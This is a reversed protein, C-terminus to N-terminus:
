LKSAKQKQYDPLPADWWWPKETFGYNSQPPTAWTGPVVPWPVSAESGTSPRAAPLVEPFIKGSTEQGRLHAILSLKHQALEQIIARAVPTNRGTVQLQEGAVALVLGATQARHLLDVPDV